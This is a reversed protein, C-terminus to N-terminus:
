EGAKVYIEFPVKNIDETTYHGTFNFNFTGKNKDATQIQFGGTSLANLLHIAMFGANDETNKDSYDGVWWVDSFDKTTLQNAPVIKSEEVTAASLLTKVLDATVTKFSGSMSADWYDIDKLEMTNKPCNDLDEGKDVYTPTASFNVGGSTAGLINGIVGTAPTFTDVLIGANMQLQKFADAPIKTFKM